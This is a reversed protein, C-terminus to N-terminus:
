STKYRTYNYIIHINIYIFCAYTYSTNIGRYYYYHAYAADSSCTYKIIIYLLRNVFYNGNQKQRKGREGDSNVIGNKHSGATLIFFRHLQIAM